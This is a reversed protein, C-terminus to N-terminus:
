GHLMTSASTCKMCKLVGEELVLGNKEALEAVTAGKIRTAAAADAKKEEAERQAAVIASPLRRVEGILSVLLRPVNALQALLSRPMPPPAEGDAPPLAPAAVDPPLASDEGAEEPVVQLQPGEM